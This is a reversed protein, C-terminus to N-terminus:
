SQHRTHVHSTRENLTSVVFLTYITVAIVLGAICILLLYRVPRPLGFKRLLLFSLIYAFM